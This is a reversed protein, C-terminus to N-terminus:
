GGSQVPGGTEVDVVGANTEVDWEQGAQEPTPAPISVIMSMGLGFGLFTM